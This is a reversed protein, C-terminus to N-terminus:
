YNLTLFKNIPEQIEDISSDLVFLKGWLELAALKSITYKNFKGSFLEIEEKSNIKLTDVVFGDKFFSPNVDLNRLGFHPFGNKKKFILKNPLWKKALMRVIKKDILFPHKYNYFRPIFGIKNKEPLNIAFELLKEDLFPFRSEISHAMGMRDNRMLLSVIHENLMLLSQVHRGRQKEPLFDFKELGNKRVLDRTFNQVAKNIFSEMGDKEIKVYRKLSPIISYLKILFNLPFRILSDYKSALLKPYGLFMEDAGEGTLVAKVGNQNALEAVGLFPVGSGHVVLPTEYHWTARAIDRLFYEPEFPYDFLEKNLATSLRKADEFESIDGIINATFLKFESTSHKSALSSILSSDIGGSVFAGMPADSMLMRRVSDSMLHDFEDLNDKFSNKSRYNYNEENILDVLDFYKEIQVGNEKSFSLFSGPSLHFLNKFLTNKKSAESTSFVSFITRIEDIEFNFNSTLAKMESAFYLNDNLFSYFLPKIGLRYRALFIEKKKKDFFAFAFMGKIQNLTTRIGFHILSNFLVETDSSSSFRVNLKELQNKIKKYNYIEGNYILVYRDNYFPQNGNDSLDLISLRNHCLGIYKDYYNSSNDPGRHHLVKSFKHLLSEDINTNNASFFGSIGCM